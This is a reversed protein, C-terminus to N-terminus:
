IGASVFVLAEEYYYMIIWGRAFILWEARADNRNCWKYLVVFLVGVFFIKDDRTSERHVYDPADRKLPLTISNRVEALYDM